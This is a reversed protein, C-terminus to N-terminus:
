LSIFLLILVLGFAVAILVLKMWFCVYSAWYKFGTSPYPKCKLKEREMERKLKDDTLFIIVFHLLDFSLATAVVISILIIWRSHTKCVTQAFGKDATVLGWCFLLIAVGCSRLYHSLRQSIDDRWKLVDAYCAHTSVLVDSSVEVGSSVEEPTKPPADPSANGMFYVTLRQAPVLFLLLDLGVVVVVV